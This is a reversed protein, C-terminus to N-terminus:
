CIGVHARAVRFCVLRSLNSSCVCAVGPVFFIANVGHRQRKRQQRRAWCGGGGGSGGRLDGASLSLSLPHSRQPVWCLMQMIRPTVPHLTRCGEGGGNHSSMSQTVRPRDDEPPPEMTADISRQNGADNDGDPPPPPPPCPPERFEQCPHPSRTDLGSPVLRPPPPCLEAHCSSSSPPLTPPQAAPGPPPPCARAHRAVTIAPSQVVM